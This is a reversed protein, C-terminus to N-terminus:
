WPKKREARELRKLDAHVALGNTKPAVTETETAFGDKVIMLISSEGAPVKVTTPTVGLSRGNLTITAGPPTSSVKVLLTARSLTVRLKAGDPTPTITRTVAALKGKRIVLDIPKRCPLAVKQPTTGLVRGQDNVIEAGAPASTV